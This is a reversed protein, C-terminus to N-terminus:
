YSSLNVSLHKPTNTLLTPKLIRIWDSRPEAEPEALKRIACEEALENLCVTITGVEYCLIDLIKIHVHIAQADQCFVPESQLSRPQPGLNQM